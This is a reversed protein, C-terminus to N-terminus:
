AEPATTDSAQNKLIKYIKNTKIWKNAFYTRNDKMHPHKLSKSHHKRHFIVSSPEFIIKYGKEQLTMCMDADECYGILYNEDYMGIEYFLEKRIAVCCGTVMQKESTKLIDSPANHPYYPKALMVGKYIRGGIHLFSRHMQSWESGASDIAGDFEGGWRLQLNGVIGIKTNKLHCVMNDIWNNTVKTDANLFILYKGCANKAGFNCNGAYGRNKDSCIIKISYCPFLENKYKEVYYFIKEKTKNPCADDAFVIETESKNKTKAFSEILDQVVDQSKYIPVIVSVEKENKNYFYEPLKMIYSNSKIKMM